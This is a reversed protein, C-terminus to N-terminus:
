FNISVIFQQNKVSIHIKWKFIDVIRKVISLGLGYWPTSRSEDIKYFPQFIKQLSEQSISKDISNSLTFNKKGLEVFITDWSSYKIANEFLNKILQELLIQNKTVFIDKQLEVFHIKKQDEFSHMIKKFITNLHLKEGDKIFTNESLFLLANIIKELWEIECKSCVVDDIDGSIQALELNSKLVALPTKLEHAVHHNYERLRANSEKIPRLTYSAIKLSIGFIVLFFLLSLILAIVTLAEQFERIFTIDRSFLVSDGSFDVEYLLFDREDMQRAIITDNQPMDGKKMDFFEFVWKRYIEWSKRVIFIDRTLRHILEKKKFRSLFDDRMYMDYFSTDEALSNRFFQIDSAFSDKESQRLYLWNLFILFWICLLLGIFAIFSIKLALRNEESDPLWYKKTWWSKNLLM